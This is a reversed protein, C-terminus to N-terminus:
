LPRYTEPARSPAASTILRSRALSLLGLGITLPLLWFGNRVLVANADRVAAVFATPTSRTGIRDGLALRVDPADLFSRLRERSPYALENAPAHEIAGVNGGHIYDALRQEQRHLDDAHINMWHWAIPSCSIALFMTATTAIEALRTWITKDADVIALRCLCGLNAFAGAGIIEVYRSVPFWLRFTPRGILIAAIQAFGWLAFVVFAMDVADGGSRWLRRLMFWTPFWAAIVLVTELTQVVGWDITAHNAHTGFLAVVIASAVLMAAMPAAISISLTGSRVRFVLPVIALLATSWGSGMAFGAGLASLCLLLADVFSGRSYTALFFAAASFGLLFYYPNGWGMDINEWGYPLTAILTAGAIFPWRCWALHKAAAAILTAVVIAYFWQSIECVPVNDFQLDGARLVFYSLLKTWLLTHENHARFFFEPSFNHAMLPRAMSDIVGDWEDFFPMEPASTLVFALRVAFVILFIGLATFVFTSRTPADQAAEVM